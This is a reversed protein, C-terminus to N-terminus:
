ILLSKISCYDLETTNAIPNNTANFTELNFLIAIGSLSTLNNCSLDLHTLHSASVISNLNAIQNNNAVLSTLEHTPLGNFNTLHNCSVDVQKLKTLLAFWELTTLNCNTLRLETINIMLAITATQTYSLCVDFLYVSSITGFAFTNNLTDTDVIPEQTIASTDASTNAQTNVKTIEIPKCIAEWDFPESDDFLAGDNANTFCNYDM